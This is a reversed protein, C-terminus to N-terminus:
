NSDPEPAAFAALRLERRLERAFAARMEPRLFRGVRLVTGRESLQVLSGQGAAPEVATWGANFAAHRVRSGRRQEVTLVTGVLTLREGDCAHHAYVLLAIGVLILELGAFATIIPAGQLWFGASVVAAMACLSLYVAGLQRPTISCPQRLAWQVARRQGGDAVVDRGFRDASAPSPAPWPSPALAATM